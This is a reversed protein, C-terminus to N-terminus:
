IDMCVYVNMCQIYYSHIRKHATDDYPAMKRFVSSIFAISDLQYEFVYNCHSIDCVVPCQDMEIDFPWSKVLFIPFM